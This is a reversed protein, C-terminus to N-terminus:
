AIYALRGRANTLLQRAEQLEPQTQSLAYFGQREPPLLEAISFGIADMVHQNKRPSTALERLRQAHIPQGFRFHVDAQTFFKADIPLVADDGWHGFPVIVMNPHDFYRNVATLLRQMQGSRSRLGEAFILLNDGNDLREHAIDIVRSGEKAIERPSLKQGASQLYYNQPVKITGFCLSMASQFRDQFPKFGSIATLSDAIDDRCENVLVTDLLHVTAASLHNGIFILHQGELGDLNKIGEVSSGPGFLSPILLRCIDRVVPDHPRFGNPFAEQRIADLTTLIESAPKSRLLREIVPLTTALEPFRLDRLTSFIKESFEGVAAGAETRLKDEKRPPENTKSIAARDACMRQFMTDYIVSKVLHNCIVESKVYNDTLNLFPANEINTLIPATKIDIEDRYNLRM